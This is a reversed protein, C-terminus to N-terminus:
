RNTDPHQYRKSVPQNGTIEKTRSGFVCVTRGELHFCNNVQKVRIRKKRFVQNGKKAPNCVIIVMRQALHDAGAQGTTQDDSGTTFNHQSIGTSLM